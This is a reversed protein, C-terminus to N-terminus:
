ISIRAKTRAGVIGDALMGYTAQYDMVTAHTLPGFIGDPNIDYGHRRLAQQLHRVDCGRDGISLTRPAAKRRQIEPGLSGDCHWKRITEDAVEFHMGDEFSSFGVGWYWGAKHFYPAIAALGALTKGDRRESGLGDLKGGVSLDIACGWSHNSLSRTNGITRVCAMGATGLVDYVEPHHTKVDVLISRLSGVATNLGTVRFPGVNEMVILSKLPQNTIARCRRDVDSRPVGLISTLTSRKASSLGRNINRPIPVIATPVIPM